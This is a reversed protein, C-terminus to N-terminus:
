FRSSVEDVGDCYKEALEWQAALDGQGAKIILAHDADLLKFFKM